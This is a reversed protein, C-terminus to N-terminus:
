GVHQVRQLCHDEAQLADHVPHKPASADLRSFSTGRTDHRHAGAGTDNESVTEPGHSSRNHGSLYNRRREMLGMAELIERSGIENVCKGV